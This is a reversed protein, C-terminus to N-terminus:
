SIRRLEELALLMNQRGVPNQSHIRIDKPIYINAGLRIMAIVMNLFAAGHARDDGLDHDLSWEQIYSNHQLICMVADWATKCWTYGEPAERIDDLWLKM